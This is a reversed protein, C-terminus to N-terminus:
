TKRQGTRDVDFQNYLASHGDLMVEVLFRYRLQDGDVLIEAQPVHEGVYAALTNRLNRRKVM